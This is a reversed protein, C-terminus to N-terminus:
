DLMGIEGFVAGETLVNLTVESGSAAVTWIRMRGEAVVYLADSEDGVNFLLEGKALTRKQALRAMQDLTAPAVGVFMALASLRALRTEAAAAKPAPTDTM